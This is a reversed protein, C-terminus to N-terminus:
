REEVFCKSVDRLSKIDHQLQKYFNFTLFNQFIDIAARIKHCFIPPSFYVYRRVVGGLSYSELLMSEVNVM